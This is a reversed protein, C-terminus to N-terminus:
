KPDKTTGYLKLIIQEIETFFAKPIKISIASFRFTAKRLTAMKIINIRGIRSYLISETQKCWRGNKGDTDYNETYLDKM